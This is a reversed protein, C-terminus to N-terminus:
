SSRPTAREIKLKRVAATFSWLALLLVFAGGTVGHRYQGALGDVFANGRLTTRDSGFSGRLRQPGHENQGVRFKVIVVPDAGRRVEPDQRLSYLVWWHQHRHMSWQAHKLAM